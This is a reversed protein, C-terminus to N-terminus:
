KAVLLKKVEARESLSLEIEGEEAMTLYTLAEDEINLAKYIAGRHYAMIPTASGFANAKDSYMKAEMLNGQKYRVWSMVDLSERSNRQSLDYEAFKSAKELATPNEALFAAAYQAYLDKYQDAANLFSAINSPNSSANTEFARVEDALLHLHANAGNGQLLEDYIHGAFEFDEHETYALWAINELSAKHGPSLEMAEEFLAYAESINGNHINMVGYNAILSAQMIPNISGNKAKEVAREFLALAKESEGILDYWRIYRQMGFYTDEDLFFLYEEAQEYDGVEFLADFVIGATLPNKKLEYAKEALALAEKFRHMSTKLSSKQAYYLAHQPFSALLEDLLMEAREIDQIQATARFRISLYEVLKEKAVIDNENKDIRSQFFDVWHNVEQLASNPKKLNSEVYSGDLHQPSQNILRLAVVAAFTLIVAIGALLSRRTTKM